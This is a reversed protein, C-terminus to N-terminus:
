KLLFSQYPDYQIVNSISHNPCSHSAQVKDFLINCDTGDLMKCFMYCDETITYRYEAKLSEQRKINMTGQYTTSM